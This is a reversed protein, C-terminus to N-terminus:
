KTRQYRPDPHGYHYDYDGYQPGWPMHYERCFLYWNNTHTTNGIQKCKYLIWSLIKTVSVTWAWTTSQNRFWQILVHAQLNLSVILVRFCIFSLCLHFFRLAKINGCVYRPRDPFYYPGTGDYGQDGYHEVRRSHRFSVCPPSFVMVAFLLLVFFAYTNVSPVLKLGTEFKGRREVKLNTVVNEKETSKMLTVTIRPDASYCCM